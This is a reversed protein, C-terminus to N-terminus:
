GTASVTEASAGARRDRELVFIVAAGIILLLGGTLLYSVPRSFGPPVLVCGAACLALVATRRDGTATPALCLTGWLLYWPRLTPGLLALALLAFGAGRDLPRHRATVILYVLVCVMATVATIRGGIALDDYSAVRVIPTLITSIAGAPSFPTHTAFQNDVTTIWGFGTTGAVALATGVTVVVAVLLDRGVVLWGPVRRRGLYHVTIVLPLVVFAQGSVSGALCVVAIAVLWRRQRAALLAALVLAIMLGDLHAASVLYLLVLPNLVTLTLARDRAGGGLDAALRGIWIVALVAVARLVIVAGLASTGSVSVSLHAIVSGLPGISSPLDRAAPEIATVVQADGLRAASTVYPNHGSRQLLGFAAYSYVGTDMLPPGVVFPLAWSAAVRWIRAQPQPRRRVFEAVFLWLLVLAVIAMLMLAASLTQAGPTRRADELGLWTTLPRSARGGAADAGTVVVAASVLLGGVGFATMPHDRIERRAADLGHLAKEALDNM